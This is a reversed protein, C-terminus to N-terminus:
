IYEELLSDFKFDIENNQDAKDIITNCSLNLCRLTRNKSLVTFLINFDNALLNNWSLDLDELYESKELLSAVLELSTKDIQMKVLALARLKVKQEIMYSLMDNIVIPHTVCNVLRLQQLHGPDPKILIPKLSALGQEHFVNNKYVFNSFHNSASLGALLISLETDDIGCNDFM